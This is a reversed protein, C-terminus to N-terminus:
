TEAEGDPNKGDRLARFRAWDFSANEEQLIRSKERGCVPCRDKGAEERCRPCLLAAAEEEDLLLNLACWLFDRDTMERARKETPLAAFSRLVRWRLRQGPLRALSAKLGELRQGDLDLGLTEEKRFRAWRGALAEIQGPTLRDLVEKGDRFRRRGTARIVARALLCANSCLALEKGDQALAAAERRAELLERAAPLRLRDGNKLPLTGPGAALKLWDPVRM